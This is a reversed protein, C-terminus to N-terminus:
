IEQFIMDWVKNPIDVGYQAEGGGGGGGGGGIKKAPHFGPLMYGIGDKSLLLLRDSM